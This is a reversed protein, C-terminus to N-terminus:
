PPLDGEYQTTSGNALLQMDSANLRTQRYRYRCTDHDRACIIGLSGIYSM